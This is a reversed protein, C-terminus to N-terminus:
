PPWAWYQSVSNCPKARPRLLMAKPTPWALTLLESSVETLGRGVTQRRSMKQLRTWQSGHDVSSISTM